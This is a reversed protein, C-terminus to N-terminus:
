KASAAFVENLDYLEIDTYPGDKPRPYYPQGFIRYPHPWRALPMTSKLRDENMGVTAFTGIGSTLLYRIGHDRHLTELKPWDILLRGYPYGQLKAPVDTTLRQAAGDRLDLATAVERQSINKESLFEIIPRVKFSNALVVSIPSVSLLGSAAVVGFIIGSRTRRSLYDLFEGGLLCFFPLLHVLHRAYFTHKGALGFVTYVSAALVTTLAMFRSASTEGSRIRTIGYIFGALLIGGVLPGSWRAVELYSEIVSTGMDTTFIQTLEDFKSLQAFYAALDVKGLEVFLDLVIFGLASLIGYVCLIAADKRENRRERAFAIVAGVIFAYAPIYTFFSLALCAAGLRLAMANRAKLARILELSALLCLVSLLGCPEGSRSYHLFLGNCFLLFVSYLAARENLFEKAVLYTLFLSLLGFTASTAIVVSQREGFFFLVPRYAFTLFPNRFKSFYITRYEDPSIFRADGISSLFLFLGFLAFILLVGASIRKM